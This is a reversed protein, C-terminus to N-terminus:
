TFRMKGHQGFSKIERQGFDYETSFQRALEFPAFKMGMAELYPRYKQCITVDEPEECVISDDQLLRQLRRSRLSFGGNGVNYEKPNGHLLWQEPWPAGIYDFKMFQSTWSRPNVIFGDYQAVLVHSTKFHNALDKVMFNSYEQISGIHKIPHKQPHATPLSTLLKVAGFKAHSKNHELSKIARDINVCDAILLTVDSLQLKM